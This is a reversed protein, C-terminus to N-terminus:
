CSTTRSNRRRFLERIVDSQQSETLGSFLGLLAEQRPTLPSPSVAVPPMDDESDFYGAPLGARREMNAAAKEGFSRHGNLIQSIYTADIAKDADPRSRKRVFETPGGDAEVLARLKEVRRTSKSM